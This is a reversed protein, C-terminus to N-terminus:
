LSHQVDSKKGQCIVRGAVVIKFDNDHWEGGIVTWNEKTQPNYRYEWLEWGAVHSCVLRHQYGEFMSYRRGNLFVEVDHYSPTEAAVEDAPKAYGPLPSGEIKNARKAKVREANAWAYPIILQACRKLDLGLATCLAALTLMTGGVENSAEGVPRAFVYDVLQHAEEKTCGAVQALEMSEEVFRHARDKVDQSAQAGFCEVVWNNVDTQFYDADQV